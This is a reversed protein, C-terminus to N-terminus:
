RHVKELSSETQANGSGMKWEPACYDSGVFTDLALKDLTIKGDPRMYVTELTVLVKPIDSELVNGLIPFVSKHINKFDCTLLLANVCYKTTIDHPEVFTAM